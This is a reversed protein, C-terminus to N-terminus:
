IPSGRPNELLLWDKSTSLQGLYKPVLQYGQSTCEILSVPGFNRNKNKDAEKYNGKQMNEIVTSIQASM